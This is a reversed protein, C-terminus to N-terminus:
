KKGGVPVVTVNNGRMINVVPGQPVAAPAGPYTQGGPAAAAKEERPKAPVTRRQFRSVDAGTSFTSGADIPRTAARAIM